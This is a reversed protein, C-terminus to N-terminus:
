HVHQLEGMPVVKTGRTDRDMFYQIREPLNIKLYARAQEEDNLLREERKM